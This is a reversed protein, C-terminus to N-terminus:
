GRGRGEIQALLAEVLWLTTNGSRNSIFAIRRGDPSWRANTNDSDGYTLPFRCGLCEVLALRGYVRFHSHNGTVEYLEAISSISLAGPRQNAWSERRTAYAIIGRCSDLRRCVVMRRATPEAAPNSGAIASDTGTGVRADSRHSSRITSPDTGATKKAHTNAPGREGVVLLSRHSCRRMAARRRPANSSTRPM